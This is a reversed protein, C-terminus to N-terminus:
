IEYNRIKSMIAQTLYIANIKNPVFEKVLDFIEKELEYNCTREKTKQVIETLIM